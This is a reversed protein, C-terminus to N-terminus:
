YTRRVLLMNQFFIMRFLIIWKYVSKNNTTANLQFLNVRHYYYKNNTNDSISLLANRTDGM